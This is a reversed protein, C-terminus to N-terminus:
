KQAPGYYLVETERKSRFGYTESKWLIRSYERLPVHDTLIDRISKDKEQFKVRTIFDGARGVPFSGGSVARIAGGSQKSLEEPLDQLYGSFTIGVRKDLVYGTYGKPLPEAIHIVNKHNKNRKVTIGPLSKKLYEVLNETSKLTQGKTLYVKDLLSPEDLLPYFKEITFHCDLNEGAVELYDNLLVKGPLVEEQVLRDNKMSRGEGYFTAFHLAVLVCLFVSKPVIM